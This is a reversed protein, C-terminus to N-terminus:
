LLFLVLRHNTHVTDIVFENVQALVVFSQFFTDFLKLYLVETHRILTAEVYIYLFFRVTGDKLSGLAVKLHMLINQTTLRVAVLVDICKLCNFGALLVVPSKIAVTTVDWNM